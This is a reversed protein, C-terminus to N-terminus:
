RRMIFTEEELMEDGGGAPASGEGRSMSIAAPNRV